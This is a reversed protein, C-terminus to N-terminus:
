NENWKFVNEISFILEHNSLVDIINLPEILIFFDTFLGDDARLHDCFEYDLRRYRAKYIHLMESKM